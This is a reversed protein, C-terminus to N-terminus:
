CRHITPDLRGFAVGRALSSRRCQGCPFPADQTQIPKWEFAGQDDCQNWLGIALLRATMSVSVFAEDTWLGPHVSRIRAM